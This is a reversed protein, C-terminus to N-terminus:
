DWGQLYTNFYGKNNTSNIICSRLTAVYKYESSWHDKGYYYNKSIACECELETKSESLVYDPDGCVTKKWVYLTYTYSDGERFVSVTKYYEWGDNASVSVPSDTTNNTANRAFVFSSFLVVVALSAIIFISKKM